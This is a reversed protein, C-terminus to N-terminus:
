RPNPRITAQNRPNVTVTRFSLLVPCGRDPGDAAAMTIGPVDVDCRAFDVSHVARELKLTVERLGREFAPQTPAAEESSLAMRATVFDVLEKMEPMASPDISHSHDNM